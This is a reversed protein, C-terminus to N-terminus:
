QPTGCKGCFKAGEPLRAGCNVCTNYAPKEEVIEDVSEEQIVIEAPVVVEPKESISGTYNEYIDSLLIIEAMSFYPEIWILAIGVTVIVLLIWGIFSLVFFLYEIMHGTMMKRSKKMAEAAKIGPERMMIYFTEAYAIALYIAGINVVIAIITMIVSLGNGDGSINGGMAMSATIVGALTIFVSWLMIVLPIVYILSILINALVSESFGEKFGKTMDKWDAERGCRIDELIYYASLTLPGGVVLAGIGFALTGAVACGAAVLISPLLIMGWNQKMLQKAELKIEKRTM